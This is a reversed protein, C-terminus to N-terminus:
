AEVYSYGFRAIMRNNFQLVQGWVPKASMTGSVRFRRRFDGSKQLGSLANV